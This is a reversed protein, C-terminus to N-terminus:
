RSNSSCSWNEAANVDGSGSYKAVQPYPCLPRTIKAGNVTGAGILKEPAAGKEVWLEIASHVNRQPDDGAAARDIQGFSWPGAGGGCHQMGPVMFLRVFPNPDAIQRFYDITMQAPIAADNWGHYLILKGGRKRFARLDPNTANLNAAQKEEAAQLAEDPNATRINWNPDDFVMDKFFGNAFAFLLAQGPAAGTIWVGWGGPQDEGGPSFGPRVLEGKSTRPGAYIKKVTAVQAATLCHNSSAEADSKCLLTAADFKCAPPDSIIGDKVGDQADCAAMVAATIAPLKARPIYNAPDKLASQGDFVGGTLLRTWGYAPAGAVIGDYDEPFRQAEMLAERGGDSCSAFYSHRPPAGYFTALLSKARIATEHIARFGFDVIKEPHGLAWTADVPGATHGTDTGATASGHRLAGALAQYAIAGAFGGNGVGEYRGNWHNVPMWVEFNINSDSSPRIVGIVRCFAPLDSFGSVEDEGPTLPQPPKFTGPAVIEASKIVTNPLSIKRLEECKGQARAQMAALVLMVTVM